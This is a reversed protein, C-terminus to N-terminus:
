LVQFCHQFGRTKLSSHLDWFPCPQHGAIWVAPPLTANKGEWGVCFIRGQAKWKSKNQFPNQVPYSPHKCSLLEHHYASYTIAIWHLGSRMSIEKGVDVWETKVVVTQPPYYLKRKCVLFNLGLNFNLCLDQGVGSVKWVIAEWLAMHMENRPIKSFINLSACM